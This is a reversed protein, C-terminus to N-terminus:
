APEFFLQRREMRALMAVHLAFGLISVALFVAAYSYVKGTDRYAFATIEPHAATPEIRLGSLLRSGSRVFFVEGRPLKAEDESAPIATLRFDYDGAETGEQLGQSRARAALAEAWAAKLNEVEGRSDIKGEYMKGPAEWGAPFRRIVPFDAAQLSTGLFPVWGPESGRPGTGPKTGPAGFLWIASLLSLWIFLGTMLVLYAQKGGYIGLLLIYISGILFTLGIIVVIAGGFGAWEGELALPWARSLVDLAGGLTTLVGAIM